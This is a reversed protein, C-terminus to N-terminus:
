ALHRAGILVDTGAETCTGTMEYSSMVLAVSALQLRTMLMDVTCAILVPLSLLVVMRPSM